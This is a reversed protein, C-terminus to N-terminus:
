RARRRSRALGALGLLAAAGPAPVANLGKLTIKGSYSAGSSGSYGNYVAILGQGNMALSGGNSALMSYFGSASSSGSGFGGLDTGGFGLNFGGFSGVANGDSVGVLLDSAWSSDSFLNTFQIDAIASTLTGSISGLSILIGQGGVLAGSSFTVSIDASSAGCIAAAALGAATLSFRKM